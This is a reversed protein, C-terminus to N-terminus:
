VSRRLMMKGEVEVGVTASGKEGSANIVLCTYNASDDATVVSLRSVWTKNKNQKRYFINGLVELQM